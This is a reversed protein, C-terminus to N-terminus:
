VAQDIKHWRNTMVPAATRVVPTITRDVSNAAPNTAADMTDTAAAMHLSHNAVAARLTVSVAVAATGTTFVMAAEDRDAMQLLMPVATWIRQQVAQDIRRWRNTMVPAATRVVPTMTKDVKNAAPKTAAHM